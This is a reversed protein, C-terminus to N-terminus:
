VLVVVIGLSGRQIPVVARRGVAELLQVIQSNRALRVAAERVISVEFGSGNPVVFVAVVVVAFVAVVVVV